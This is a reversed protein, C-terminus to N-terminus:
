KLGVETKERSIPGPALIGLTGGAPIIGGAISDPEDAGVRPLQLHPSHSISAYPSTHSLGSPGLLFLLQKQSEAFLLTSHPHQPSIHALVPDPSWPSHRVEDRGHVGAGVLLVWPGQM